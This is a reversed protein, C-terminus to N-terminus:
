HAKDAHSMLNRYICTRSQCTDCKYERRQMKAGIGIIGSVSKIPNMLCSASLSIGVPHDGLLRFLPQQEALAWNCYGPSYRNSIHLQEGILSDALQKQIKDMAQEVTLSGVTDALYAGLLDGVANYQASLQTFVAGATCLFAAIHSAGKLYGAVQRGTDLTVESAEKIIYGGAIGEYGYLRDYIEDLSLIVPHEEAENRHNPENFEDMHLYRLVEARAPAVEDFSYRFSQFVDRIM